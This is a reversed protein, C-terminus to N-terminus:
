TFKNFKGLLDTIKANVDNVFSSNTDTLEQIEFLLRVSVYSPHKQNWRTALALSLLSHSLTLEESVWMNVAVFRLVYVQTPFLTPVYDARRLMRLENSDFVCMMRGECFILSIKGNCLPLPILYYTILIIKKQHTFM